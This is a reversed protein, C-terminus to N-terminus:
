LLSQTRVELRFYTWLVFYLNDNKWTNCLPQLFESHHLRLIKGVESFIYKYKYNNYDINYINYIIYIIDHQDGWLGFSYIIVPTINIRDSLDDWPSSQPKIYCFEIRWFLCLSFLFLIEHCSSCAPSISVFSKKGAWGEATPLQPLFQSLSCIYASHQTYALM